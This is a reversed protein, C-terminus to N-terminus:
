YHQKELVKSFNLVSRFIGSAGIIALFQGPKVIGSINHLITRPNEKSDTTITINEFSLEVPIKSSPNSTSASLEPKANKFPM